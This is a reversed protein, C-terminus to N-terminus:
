LECHALVHRATATLGSAIFRLVDAEYRLLTVGLPAYLGAATQLVTAVHGVLSDTYVGQRARYFTLFETGDEWYAMVKCDYQRSLAGEPTALHKRLGLVIEMNAATLPSFRAPGHGEIDYSSPGVVKLGGADEVTVLSCPVRDPLVVAHWAPHRRDNEYLGLPIGAWERREVFRGEVPEHWIWQPNYPRHDIFVTDTITRRIAAPFARM